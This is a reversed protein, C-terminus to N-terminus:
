NVAAALPHHFRGDRLFNGIQRGTETRWAMWTHTFPVIVHDSMGALRTSAVTVKGDDPGPLWASFLPNLSRDAAIIGLSGAGRASGPSVPWPGLARPLETAGTGLRRGNAGTFWRFPAFANMRDTLESGANPPALMVVRGLWGPTGGERLWLRVVIGGMSHTVFHVTADDTKSTIGCAQLQAPLWDRALTELPLSRSPYGLNIVRYGDRELQHALHAMSWRTRGLGHLLVVTETPSPAATVATALGLLCLLFRFFKL